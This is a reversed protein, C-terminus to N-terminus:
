YTGNTKEGSEIKIQIFIEITQIKQEPKKSNNRESKNQQDIEKHNIQRHEAKSNREIAKSEHRWDEKREGGQQGQTTASQRPEFRIQVGKVRREVVSNERAYKRM